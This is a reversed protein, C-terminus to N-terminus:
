VVKYEELYQEAMAHQSFRYVVSDRAIKSQRALELPNNIYFKFAEAFAAIDGVPVLKGNENNTILEPMGGVCSAVVPTQCAMAELACMPTGESLSPLAFIDTLSLIESVDSRAGTFIVQEVIGLDSTLKELEVKCPGDGVILLRLTINSTEVVLASFAKILTQQDKIKTLRAVTAIVFYGEIEELDSPIKKINFQETDIGNYLLKVKEKKIGVRAILWQSIDESVAIYKHTFLSMIKRILNRKKNVGMPDDIDRGHEAHIRRPCGSIYALFQYELSSFNYSHFVQPKYQRLLQWIKKHISWDNGPKKNLAIIEIDKHIQEVFECAETLAIIVHRYDTDPMENICNAIVRELGGVDFRYLLHFVIPQPENM